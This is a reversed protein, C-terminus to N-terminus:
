SFLRKIREEDLEITLNKEQTPIVLATKGGKVRKLYKVQTYYVDAKKANRAKSYLLALNAADLLTELPISKQALSKIFVHSGPVDRTHVWWDNGRTWRRLLEDNEQANRGVLITFPGSHFHIGCASAFPDQQREETEEEKGLAKRLADITEQDEETATLLRQWYAKTDAIRTEIDALEKCLREVTAKAKRFKKYYAEVNQSPTLAPNLTIAVEDAGEHTYDPVRVLSSKPTVLHLSSALLDGSKRYMDYSSLEELAHKVKEKEDRLRALERDRKETAQFVLHEVDTEESKEYEAEIQENFTIGERRPRITYTDPEIDKKEPPIQFSKGAIENRQPRRFLLELLTFQEDCVMINAGPGSYFRLILYLTEGRRSLRWFLLREGAPQSVENIHSGEVHSRLYQIFRQLKKTKHQRYKESSGSVSHIRSEPTGVEVYLKWLGHSRHYLEFLLAHFGIQHVRQIISGELPLESVILSIERWNLSM